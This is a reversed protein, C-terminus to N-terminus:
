NIQRALVSPVGVAPPETSGSQRHDKVSSLVPRFLHPSRYMLLSQLGPGQCGVGGNSPAPDGRPPPGLAELPLQAARPSTPAELSSTRCIEEEELLLLSLRDAAKAKAEGKPPGLSRGPNLREFPAHEPDWHAATLVARWM